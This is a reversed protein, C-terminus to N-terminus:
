VSFKINSKWFLKCKYVQQKTLFHLYLAIIRAENAGNGKIIKLITLRVSFSYIKKEVVNRRFM